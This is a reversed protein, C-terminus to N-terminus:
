EAADAALSEANLRSVEQDIAELAAALRDRQRDSLGSAEIWSLLTEAAHLAQLPDLDASPSHRLAALLARRDAQNRRGRERSSHEGIGVAELEEAPVREHLRYSVHHRINAAVRSREIGRIGARDYAEGVARRYAYSRGAWDTEGTPTTMLERLDILVDAVNRYIETVDGSESLGRLYIAAEEVLEDIRQSNRTAM